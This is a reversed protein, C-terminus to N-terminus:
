TGLLVRRSSRAYGRYIWRDLGYVLGDLPDKNDDDVLPNYKPIAAILRKCRPHVSFFGRSMLQHLWRSRTLVSGAGRGGGRKATWVPPNVDGFEIGLLKAIAAQFDSASKQDGKGAKHPRDAKVELLEHWEWGNRRVMTLTHRADDDNTERGTKGVYEDLVHVWPYGAGGNNEDVLLQLVIQKGPRDGFDLGLACEVDGTPARRTVMRDPDWVKEFYAGELRFEWEGHIVVGVEVDSTEAVLATIWREDCPTGDELTIRRGAAPGTAFVLHEPVLPFHLDRIKNDEVRKKVWEVPRNVPTFTMSVDGNTRLVRKQVENFVRENEPPEDIWAHHLKESALNTPDGGGWRFEIWSGNRFMVKPYKGEFAGKRYDYRPSDPALVDRPILEWLKRQAIGSARETPSLAWQFTPAPPVPRFPSRGLARFICDAAGATTKGQGQNGARLDKRKATESFYAVQAPLWSMGSLPDTQRRRELERELALEYELIARRAEVSRAVTLQGM